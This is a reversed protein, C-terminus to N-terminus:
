LHGAAPKASGAGQNPKHPRRKPEPEPGHEATGDACAKAAKAAPGM